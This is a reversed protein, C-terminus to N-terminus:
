SASLERYASGSTIAGAEWKNLFAYSLLRCDHRSGYFLTGSEDTGMTRNMRGRISSHLRARECGGLAGGSPAWVM